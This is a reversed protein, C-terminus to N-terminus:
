GFWPHSTDLHLSPMAPFGLSFWHLLLNLFSSKGNEKKSLLPDGGIENVFGDYWM